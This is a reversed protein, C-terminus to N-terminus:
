QTQETERKAQTAIAAGLLRLDEPQQNCWFGVDPVELGKLLAILQDIASDRLLRDGAWDSIEMFDADDGCPEGYAIHANLLSNSM